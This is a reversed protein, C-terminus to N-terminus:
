NIGFEESLRDLNWDRDLRYVGGTGACNRIPCYHDVDRGAPLQGELFRPSSRM